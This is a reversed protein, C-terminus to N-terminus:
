VDPRVCAPVRARLWPAGEHDVRAPAVDVLLFRGDTVNAVRLTQRPILASAAREQEESPEDGPFPPVLRLRIGSPDDGRQRQSLWLAKLDDVLCNPDVGRLQTYEVLGPRDTPKVWLTLFAGAQAACRMLAAPASSAAARPPRATM